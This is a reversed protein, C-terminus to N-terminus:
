KRSGPKESIILEELVIPTKKARQRLWNISRLVPRREVMWRELRYKGPFNLLIIGVVITLIGPGPLVLMATGVVIFVYGFVNRGALLIRRVLPHQNSWPTKRREINSNSFYDSPIRIVFWPVIILTAFFAIISTVTLWWFVTENTQILEGMSNITSDFM